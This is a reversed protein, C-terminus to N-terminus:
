IVIRERRLQAAIYKGFKEATERDTGYLNHIEIHLKEGGRVPAAAMKVGPPSYVQPTPPLAVALQPKWAGLVQQWGLALGEGMQRGLKQTLKSPSSVQAAANAAAIAGAVIASITDYLYGENDRLGDIMGWILAAGLNDGAEFVTEALDDVFTAIQDILTRVAETMDGLRDQCAQILGDALSGLLNKGAEVINTTETPLYALANLLNM